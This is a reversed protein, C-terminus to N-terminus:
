GNILADIEAQQKNYLDILTPLGAANLEEIFKDYESMPRQGTLFKGLNETTLVNIAENYQDYVKKNEDSFSVSPTRYGGNENRCRENAEITEPWAGVVSAAPDWLRTFGRQGFDYIACRDLLAVAAVEETYTPKGDEGIVYTEGEVGWTYFTEADETYTWDLFKIAESQLKSTTFIVEGSTILSTQPNITHIGSGGGEFATMYAFTVEPNTARMPVGFFEIRAQYDNFLFTNGTSVLEQWGTTDLSLTNAPMLEAEYMKALWGMMEKFPEETPGYVWSSTDNDYYMAYGTGWQWGIRDLIGPWSRNGFPSSEPYLEKLKLCAEYVEDENEPIEIGHKDFIDKRYIWFVWNSGEGVGYCPAIYLSGNPSYCYNIFSGTEDIFATLNPMENFHQSYDVLAGQLGWNTADVTGVGALMDPLDGSALGLNVKDNLGDQFPTINFYVNQLEGLKVELFAEPDYLYSAHELIWYDFTVPEDFLKGSTSPAAAAATTSGAPAATTTKSDGSQCGAFMSVLMLAVLLLAITKKAM